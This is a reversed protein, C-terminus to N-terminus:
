IGFSFDLVIKLIKVYYKFQIEFSYLVLLWLTIFKYKFM